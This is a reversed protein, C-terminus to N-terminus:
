PTRAELLLRAERMVDRTRLRPSGLHYHVLARLAPKLREIRSACAAQLAALDDAALPAQLGALDAGSLGGAAGPEAEVVGREGHLRFRLAAGPADSRTALMAQTATVRDLEPLLGIEKLLVLEFARLAIQEGADDRAVALTELTGAYADFLGPHPDARALLKMMLENLYFAAFLRAPPLVTPMADARAGAWEASRLTLVEAQAEDGQRGLTVAIRQFPLLVSRLQSYPRKAGKAAVALRGRARTFLDLILSTESWDYHHLVFADLPAAVRRTAPM